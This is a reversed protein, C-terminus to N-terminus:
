LEGSEYDGFMLRLLKEAIRESAPNEIGHGELLLKINCIYGLEMVRESELYKRITRRARMVKRRM